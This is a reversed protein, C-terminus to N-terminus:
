PDLGGPHPRLHAHEEGPAEVAGRRRGTVVLADALVIVERGLSRDRLLRGEPHLVQLQTVAKGPPVARDGDLRLVQAVALEAEEVPRDLVLHNRRPAHEQLRRERISRPVSGRTFRGMQFRTRAASRRASMPPPTPTKRAWQGVAAPRSRLARSRSNRARPARGAGSRTQTTAISLADNRSNFRVPSRTGRGTCASRIRVSLASPAAATAKSTRKSVSVVGCSSRSRSAATASAPFTTGPTLRM